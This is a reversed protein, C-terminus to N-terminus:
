KTLNFQYDGAVEIEGLDPYDVEIDSLSAKLSLNTETLTVINFVVTDSPLLGTANLGSLAVDQENNRLEWRGSITSSISPDTATYTDDERFIFTTEKSFVQLQDELQALALDVIPQPVPVGNRSASANTIDQGQLTWSGTMMEKRSVQPAEEDDGCASALLLTAIFLFNISKRIMNM